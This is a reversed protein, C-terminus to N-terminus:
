RRRLLLLFFMGGGILLATGIAIPGATNRPTASLRAGTADVPPGSHLFGNFIMWLGLAVLLTAVLALGIRM